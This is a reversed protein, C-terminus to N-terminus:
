TLYISFQSNFALIEHNECSVTKRIVKSRSMHDQQDNKEILEDM